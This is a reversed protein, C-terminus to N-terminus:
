IEVSGLHNKTVPGLIPDFYTIPGEALHNLNQRLMASLKVAIRTDTMEPETHTAHVGYENFFVADGPKFDPAILCDEGVFDRIYDEKAEGSVGQYGFLPLRMGPNIPLFKLGPAKSGCDGMAIWVNCIKGHTVCIDQHYDHYNTELFGSRANEEPPTAVLVPSHLHAVVWKDLGLVADFIQLTRTKALEELFKYKENNSELLPITFTNYERDAVFKQYPSDIYKKLVFRQYPSDIESRVHESQHNRLAKYRSQGIEFFLSAIEPDVLNRVISFGYLQISDAVARVNLNLGDFTLSTEPVPINFNINRNINIGTMSLADM